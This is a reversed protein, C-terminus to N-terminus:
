PKLKNLYDKAIVRSILKKHAIENQEKKKKYQLVRHEQKNFFYIYYIQYQKFYAKKQYDENKPKQSKCIQQNQM